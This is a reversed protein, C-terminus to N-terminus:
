PFQYLDASTGFLWTQLEAYAQLDNEETAIKTNPDHWGYTRKTNGLSAGRGRCSDFDILVLTGDGDLMVNAPTIDNHIIGLAHLHKIADLLREAARQLALNGDVGVWRRRDDSELFAVKNLARPNYREYLTQQHKKFCLGSVRGRLEVCGSYPSINPHPHQRLLECTEVERAILAELDDVEYYAYIHPKKIYHQHQDPKAITWGERILPGRDHTNIQQCIRLQTKDTPVNLRDHWEAVYLIGDLRIIGRVCHFSMENNIFKFAESHEIIEM